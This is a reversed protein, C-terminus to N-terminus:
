RKHVSTSLYSVVRATFHSFSHRVIRGGHPPARLHLAMANIFLIAGSASILLLSTMRWDTSNISYLLVLAAIVFAFRRIWQLWLPDTKSWRDYEVKQMVYMLLSAVFLAVGTYAFSVWDTM